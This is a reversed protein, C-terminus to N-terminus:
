IKRVQYEIEKVKAKVKDENLTLMRRAKMLMRGHVMVDSVDAPSTAYILHSYYDYCPVLNAADFDIIAIDAMKGKEISGICDSLGLAQAGDITLMSFVKEAPLVRPDGTVGKQVLAALQAEHFLDLDNNSAAGDTGVGVNVGQKVMDSVRAIGSSLKLNSSPCHAVSTNTEALRAIEEDSLHVCHALLTRSGLLGFSDLVEIPRQDYKLQVLELEGKSESAHTIFLLNRDHYIKAVSELISPNTTYASHAQICCHVLPVDQYTDLYDVAIQDNTNWYEEFGQIDAFSPGNVIRFGATRATETTEPYYWYMDAACTTGSKIMELIGLQAGVVVTEPSIIEAEVKWIKALWNELTCDDVLGRFLTMAWHGHVNILGPIVVKGSCDIIEKATYKGDLDNANGVWDIKGANIVVAANQFIDRSQNMTIVTGRFLIMDVPKASGDM